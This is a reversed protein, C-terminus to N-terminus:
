GLVQSVSIYHGNQSAVAANYDQVAFIDYVTNDTPYSIGRCTM